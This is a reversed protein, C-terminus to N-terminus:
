GAYDVAKEDVSGGREDVPRGPVSTTAAFMSPIPIVLMVLEVILNVIPKIKAAGISFLICSGVPEFSCLLGVPLTFTENDHFLCRPDLVCVHLAIREHLQLCTLDTRCIFPLSSLLKNCCYMLRWFAGLGRIIGTWRLERCLKLM